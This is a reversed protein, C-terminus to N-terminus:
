LIKTAIGGWENVSARTIPSKDNDTCPSYRSPAGIPVSWLCISLCISLSLRGPVVAQGAQRAIPLFSTFYHATLFCINQVQGVLAAFASSFDRTGDRTAWRVLWPHVGKM